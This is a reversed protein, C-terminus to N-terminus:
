PSRYAAARNSSAPAAGGPPPLLRQATACIAAKLPDWSADSPIDIGGFVRSQRADNRPHLESVLIQLTLPRARREDIFHDFFREYCEAVPWRCGCCRKCM